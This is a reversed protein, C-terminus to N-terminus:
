RSARMPQGRALVEEYLAEFARATAEWSHSARIQRYGNEGRM